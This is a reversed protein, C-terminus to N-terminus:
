EYRSVACVIRSVQGTGEAAGDVAVLFLEKRVLCGRQVGYVRHVLYERLVCLQVSLLSVLRWVSGLLGCGM